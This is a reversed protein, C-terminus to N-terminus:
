LYKIRNNKEKGINSKLWFLFNIMAAGDRRHVAKTAGIEVENKVSKLLNPISLGEILQCTKLISHYILSNTHDPDIFLTNLKLNQLFPTISEYDMLEVNEENLTSRLSDTIKLPDIFIIARKSDIFGYGTV